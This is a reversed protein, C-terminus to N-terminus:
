ESPDILSWQYPVKHSFTKKWRGGSPCQLHMDVEVLIIATNRRLVVKSGEHVRNVGFIPVPFPSVQPGLKTFFAMRCSFRRLPNLLSAQPRCYAMMRCSSQKRKFFSAKPFVHHRPGSTLFPRISSPHSISM